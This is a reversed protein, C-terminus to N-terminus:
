FFVGVETKIIVRANRPLNKLVLPFLFSYKVSFNVFNIVDYGLHTEVSGLMFVAIKSVVTAWWKRCHM